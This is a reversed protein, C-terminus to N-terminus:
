AGGMRQPSHKAPPKYIWTLLHAHTQPCTDNGRLLFGPKSCAGPLPQTFSHAFSATFAHTLSHIPSHIFSHTFAHTSSPTSLLRDGRPHIMGPSVRNLKGTAGGRGGRYGPATTTELFKLEEMQQSPIDGAQKGDPGTFTLTSPLLSVRGPLM